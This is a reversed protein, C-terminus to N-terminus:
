SLIVGDTDGDYAKGPELISVTGVMKLINKDTKQPPPKEKRYM